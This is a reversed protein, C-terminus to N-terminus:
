GEMNWSAIATKNTTYTWITDATITDFGILWERFTFGSQTPTPLEGIAKGYEVQIPECESGGDSDFSLTYYQLHEWVAELTYYFDDPTEFAKTFDTPSSPYEWWITDATITTDGLKWGKFTYGDRTPTPLEGIVTGLEVQIDNLSHTGQENPPVNTNFKVTFDILPFGIFTATEVGEGDAVTDVIYDKDNPIDITFTNTKGEGEIKVGAFIGHGYFGIQGEIGAIYDETNDKFSFITEGLENSGTYLVLTLKKQRLNVGTTVTTDKRYYLARAVKGGLFYNDIVTNTYLKETYGNGLDAYWGDFTLGSVALEPLEGITEGFTVYKIQTDDHDNWLTLAYVNPSWQQKAEQNSTYTWITDETIQTDGIYWGDFTYGDWITHTPITGIPEGFYVEKTSIISTNNHNYFSLTMAFSGAVSKANGKLTISSINFDNNTITKQMNDIIDKYVYTHGNSKVRIFIPINVDQKSVAKGDCIYASCKWFLDNFKMTLEKNFDYFSLTKVNSLATAIYGTLDPRESTPLAKSTFINQWTIKTIPMTLYKTEGRIEGDQTYTDDGDLSIAFETDNYSLANTLYSIRFNCSVQVCEGLQITTPEEDYVLTGIMIYAKIIDGYENQIDQPNGLYANRIKSVYYDLNSIKDTQVLFTIRGIKTASDIDQSATVEEDILEVLGYSEKMSFNLSQVWTDYTSLQPEDVLSQEGKEILRNKWSYFRIDLYQALDKETKTGDDEDILIIKESNPNTYAIKGNSAKYQALNGNFINRIINKIDQSTFITRM